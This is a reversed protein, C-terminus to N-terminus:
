QAVGLVIRKLGLTAGDYRAPEWRLGQGPYFVLVRAGARWATQTLDATLDDFELLPAQMPLMPAVRRKHQRVTAYHWEQQAEAKPSPPTEGRRWALFLDILAKRVAAAKPTRSFMCILLAQPENLWYETGPRGGVSSTEAVAASVEGYQELEVRNRAIVRRIDHIDVMGLVVALRLDHIRPESSTFVRIDSLSLNATMAWGRVNANILAVLPSNLGAQCRSNFVQRLDPGTEEGQPYQIWRVGAMAPLKRSVGPFRAPYIGPAFIAAISVPRGGSVVISHEAGFRVINRKVTKTLSDHFPTHFCICALILECVQKGHREGDCHEDCTSAIEGVLIEFVLTYRAFHGDLDPGLGASRLPQDSRGVVCFRLHSETIAVDSGLLKRFPLRSPNRSAGVQNPALFDAHFDLKWVALEVGQVHEIEPHNIRSRGHMWLRDRRLTKQPLNAIPHGPVHGRHGLLAAHVITGPNPKEVAFLPAGRM